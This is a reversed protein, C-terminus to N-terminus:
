LVFSVFASTSRSDHRVMYDEWVGTTQNLYQMRYTTVFYDQGPDGRTEIAVVYM